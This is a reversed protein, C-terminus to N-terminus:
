HTHTPHRFTSHPRTIHDRSSYSGLQYTHCGKSRLQWHPAINLYDM